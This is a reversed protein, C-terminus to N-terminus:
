NYISDNIVINGHELHDRSRSEPYETQFFYYTSAEEIVMRQLNRTSRHPIFSVDRM